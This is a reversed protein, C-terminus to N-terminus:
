AWQLSVGHIKNTGTLSSGVIKWRLQVQPSASGTLPTSGTLIKIGSSGAEYGEDTLTIANFTTNDRTVSANIDTNLDDVIEAFIVLRAKSPTSNATFTDSIITMSTNTVLSQMELVVLQGSGGLGGRHDAYSGSPGGAFSGGGGGTNAVGDEGRSNEAPTTTPGPQHSGDGGGGVGGETKAGPHYSGGGGGGGVSGDPHGYGAPFWNLQPNPPGVAIGAGGDGGESPPANAGVAGAGGGGGGSYNSGPNMQGGDFGQQTLDGAPHRSEGTEGEGVVGESYGAGGGSGGPAGDTYELSPFLPDYSPENVTYSHGGSGGGEATITPGFTTDGGPKSRTGGQPVTAGTPGGTFPGYQPWEVPRFPASTDPNPYSPHNPVFHGEGGAGVNVAVGAGGIVPVDADLVVGGAGGGGGGGSGYGGGGGAGGGGLAFVKVVSTTPENSFTSSGTSTIQTLSAQPSPIPNPGSQNSYFDSTSDYSSNSNEGTDVGSEDNFEDVVGDVLNFITLGETVAM